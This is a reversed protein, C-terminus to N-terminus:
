IYGMLKYSIVGFWEHLLSNWDYFSTTHPIFLKEFNLGSSDSIATTSYEVCHIGAKDFCKKARYMHLTSTILINRSGNPMMKNLVQKSNLANERTNDSVSDVWIDQEPLGIKVLFRKLFSAEYQDRYFLHGPGGSILIKKIKGQKYLNVAQLIRDSEGRFIARNKQYDFNVIKGGLVIGVDYTENVPLEVLPSEYSRLFLEVIFRNSFFYFVIIAAVLLKFSWKKKRYILAMLLMLFVWGLPALFWSVIKSVVFFM